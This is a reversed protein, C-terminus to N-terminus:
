LDLKGQQHQKITKRMLERMVQAAPRDIQQCVEMFARHLDADMKVPLIAFDKVPKKVRKVGKDAREKRAKPAPAATEM